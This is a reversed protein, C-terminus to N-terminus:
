GGVTISWFNAYRQGAPLHIKRPDGAFDEVVAARAAKATWPEICVYPADTGLAKWIGLYPMQPYRVTVQRYGGAACLTVQRPMGTLIVVREAFLEHSLPIAGDILLFPTIEGTMLCNGATGEVRRATAGQPFQLRYDEYHLGEELPVRFGPHGGVSFHMIDHGRNEVTIEVKLRNETLMYAIAYRFAAPYMKWTAETDEMAFVIRGPSQEAVTLVTDKVFGHIDLHYTKGHITYTNDTCLGVQPFLNLARDPWYRPDGQWLYEAGDATRISWLQAGLDSIQVCLTENSITYLM